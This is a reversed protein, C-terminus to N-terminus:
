RGAPHGDAPDSSISLKLCGAELNLQLHQVLIEMVQPALWNDPSRITSVDVTPQLSLRVAARHRQQAPPPGGDMGIAVALCM